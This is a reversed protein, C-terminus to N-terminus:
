EQPREADSRGEMAQNGNEGEDLFYVEFGFVSSEVAVAEQNLARGMAALVEDKLAAALARIADAPGAGRILFNPETIWDGRETRYAGSIRYHPWVYYGGLHRRFLQEVRSRWLRVEADPLRRGGRDRTPIFVQIWSRYRSTKRKRRPM